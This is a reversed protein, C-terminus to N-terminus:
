GLCGKFAKLYAFTKPFWGTCYTVICIPSPGLLPTKAHHLPLLFWQELAWSAVGFRIQM